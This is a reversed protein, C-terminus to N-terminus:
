DGTLVPILSVVLVLAMAINFLRLRTDSRLLTRVGTRPPPATAIKWALIAMWVAGGWRIFPLLWPTARLTAGLGADVLVLM